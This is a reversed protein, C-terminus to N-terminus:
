YRRFARIIDRSGKGYSHGARDHTSTSCIEKLSDPPQVRPARLNLESEKPPPTLTLEGLDFRKAMREAMHKQQEPTPGQDEYGWGWFKRRREAMARVGKSSRAEITRRTRASKCIIAAQTRTDAVTNSLSRPASEHTFSRNGRLIRMRAFAGRHEAGLHRIDVYAGAIRDDEQVAIRGRRIQPAVDNRMEAIARSTERRIKDAHAVRSFGRRALIAEDIVRLMEICPEIRECEVPADRQHNVVPSRREAKVPRMAMGIRDLADRVHFRDHPRDFEHFPVLLRHIQKLRQATRGAVVQNQLLVDEHLANQGAAHDAPEGVLLHRCVPFRKELGAFRAARRQCPRALDGEFAVRRVNGFDDIIIRLPERLARKRFEEDIGVRARNQDARLALEAALPGVLALNRHFAHVEDLFVRRM